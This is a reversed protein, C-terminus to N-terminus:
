RTPGASAPHFRYTELSELKGPERKIERTEHEAPGARETLRAVYADLQTQPFAFKKRSLGHEARYALLWLERGPDIPATEPPPSWYLPGPAVRIADFVFQGGVGWWDGLYPAWTKQPDDSNFVIWAAGPSSQRAAAQVAQKSALASKTHYPRAVEVVMGGVGFILFFGCAALLANHVHWSLPRRWIGGRHLNLRVLGRVLAQLVIWLGLGALLCIAPGLYLNVRLAGGYPYKKFAAAIFALAFPALLLFLLRRNTRWLRVGGIVFLIFTAISGPSRGGHPFAFLDGTHILALWGLLKLPQTIPPFTKDWADVLRAATAAHPGAYIFYMAAFSGCLVVAFLPSLNLKVSGRIISSIGKIQLLAATGAVFVAPYSLWPAAAALLLLAAWRSASNPRQWVSWALMTLGLSVLLDTEYPKIEAGHRVIYFSVAFFGIALLAPRRPLVHRAFRAFLFLAALSALTAVLRLAWESLAATRGVLPVLAKVVALEIWMFALPVIQGYDLPQILRLFDRPRITGDPSLTVLNVAVFSEDGWIPAGVAYRLVRWVLGVALLALLLHSVGPRWASRGPPPGTAPTTM